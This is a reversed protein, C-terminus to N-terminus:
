VDVAETNRVVVYILVSKLTLARFTFRQGPFVSNNKPALRSLQSRNSSHRAEAYPEWRQQPNGGGGFHM